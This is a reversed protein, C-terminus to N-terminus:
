KHSGGSIGLSKYIAAADDSIFFGLRVAAAGARSVAAGGTAARIGGATRTTTQTSLASDANDSTPAGSPGLQQLVGPAGESTGTAAPGDRKAVDVTTGCAALAVGLLLALLGSIVPRRVPVPCAEGGSVARRSHMCRVEGAVCADRIDTEPQSVEM